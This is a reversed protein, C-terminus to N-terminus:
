MSVISSNITEAIGMVSKTVSSVTNTVSEVGNMVEGIALSSVPDTM